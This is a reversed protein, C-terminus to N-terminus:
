RDDTMDTCGGVCVSQGVDFPGERSLDPSVAMYSPFQDVSSHAVVSEPSLVSSAPLPLLPLPLMPLDSSCDLLLDGDGALFRDMAAPSAPSLYGSTDPVDATIPSSAPAYYSHAPSMTYSPFSDISPLANVVWLPVPSLQSTPAPYPLAPVPPAPYRSPSVPLAADSDQLPSIIMPLASVHLLEDELDTRSDDSLVEAFVPAAAREPVSSRFVPAEEAPPAALNSSAAPRVVSPRRFDRLWISVPLVRPRCDYVVAGVLERVAQDATVPSPVCVPFDRVRTPHMRRRVRRTKRPSGTDVDYTHVNRPSSSSAPVPSSLACQAMASAQSVYVRLRSLYEKRFAFHPLGRQFVRYHHVLSLNMESFLLVDTSVGSHCPKLADAWIQRRVTWPPFFLDLRSSKFESPVDHAERVHDMCDQPTGQWVTCWSVPCRRLQGLDLHFTSVHRYMDCKIWKGCKGLTDTASKLMLACLMWNM